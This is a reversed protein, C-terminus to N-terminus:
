IHGSDFRTRVADLGNMYIQPRVYVVPMAVSAGTNMGTIKFSVSQMETVSNAKDLTTLSLQSKKGTVRLQEVLQASCFSNNSGSDLLAYTSVVVDHEDTSVVVPVIPLAIRTRAGAGTFTCQAVSETSNMPVDSEVGVNASDTNNVAPKVRYLYKSHKKNCGPVQCTYSLTVNPRCM